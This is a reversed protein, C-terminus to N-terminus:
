EASLSGIEIFDPASCKLVNDPAPGPLNQACDTFHRCSFLWAFNQKKKTLYAVCSKVSKDDTM